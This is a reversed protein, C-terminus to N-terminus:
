WRDETLPARRAHKNRGAKEGGAAYNCRRGCVPCPFLSHSFGLYATRAENHDWALWPGMPGLAHGCRACPDQPHHNKAATERSNRHDKGYGRATSSALRRRARSAM